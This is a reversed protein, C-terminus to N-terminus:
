CIFICWFYNHLLSWQHIETIMSLFAELVFIFHLDNAKHPRKSKNQHTKNEQLTLYRETLLNEYRKKSM